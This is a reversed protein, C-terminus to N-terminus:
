IERPDFEELKEGFRPQALLKTPAATLAQVIPNSRDCYKGIWVHAAVSNQM